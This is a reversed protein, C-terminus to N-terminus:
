NSVDADGDLENEDAGHDKGAGDKIKGFDQTLVLTFDAVRPGGPALEATLFPSLVASAAAERNKVHLFSTTTESRHCGNCTGLAFARRLEESAGPVQWSWAFPTFSSAALFPEGSPLTTPIDYTGALVQSANTSLWDGLLTTGNLSLPPEQKVTDPVLGGASGVVFERLEWMTGRPNSPDSGPEALAVENTRIQLLASGNNRQPAARRKTFRRTQEFLKDNYGAGFALKGLKHWGQAYAQIDSAAAVPVMYEFIVTFQLAERAPGLVGFVFRGQGASGNAPNPLRRLDPRNVVALLRFPVVEPAFSLKCTADTTPSDSCSAASNGLKGVSALKWPTILLTRILPRAPIVQGNVAQPTEWSRLWSMVFDSRQKDNPRDVPSMNDILRGFSFGGEPETDWKGPKYTTFKTANVVSLDTVFLEKAPVPVHDLVAGQEIDDINEDASADGPGAGCGLLGLTLLGWTAGLLRGISAAM